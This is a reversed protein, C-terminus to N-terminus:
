PVIHGLIHGKATKRNKVLDCSLGRSASAQNNAITLWPPNSGGVGQNARLKKLRKGLTNM